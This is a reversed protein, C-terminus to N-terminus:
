PMPPVGSGGPQEANLEMNTASQLWNNWNIDSDTDVDMNIGANGFMDVTSDAWLWPATGPGYQGGEWEAPFASSVEPVIESQPDTPMTSGLNPFGHGSSSDFGPTPWANQGFAPDFDAQQQVVISPNAASTDFDQPPHEVASETILRRWHERFVEESNGGAFPGESAPTPINRDDAVLQEAASPDGRLRKLEADRHRRAKTMMKRLPLWIRLNKDLNPQAPILWVSHLAVWAREVVPSWPRRSSEILLYAIAHWHTYTQYIWRWQRAATEANLAHNWEAVEIAAVLLRNRIEESFTESPSSFLAPLYIFLTLKSILLRTVRVIVWYAINGSATAYQLYGRELKEYLNNLLQSQEDITPGGGTAGPAMMKRNSECMQFMVLAISMDTLGQREPPLEKSEPNMDANDINLPLKTDFSGSPITFDTGQDESARIDLLCILWWARRRMEADFPSLNDFRAGDRHLGLAQAMRILLGTMMWVFRPSDHRRALYLFNSFAQVLTLTPVNLFDARAFAHELGLRYKLVLESKPSGFNTVM